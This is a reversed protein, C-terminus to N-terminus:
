IFQPEFAIFLREAQILRKVVGPQGHSAAQAPLLLVSNIAYPLWVIIALETLAPGTVVLWSGRM